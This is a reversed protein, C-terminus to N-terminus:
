GVHLTTADAAMSAAVGKATERGEWLYGQFASSSWRGYRKIIEVDHYLHYLATAGGIRLSHSRFRDPPLDLAVAARELYAQVQARTLPTGDAWRCAPQDPESRFRHMFHRQYYEAAQVPCLTDGTRFHSRTAGAGEQDAKSARFYLQVEDAEKATAVKVGASFFALTTPLMVKDMDWHGSHAYEGARMLFIWAMNIGFWAVADDPRTEPM